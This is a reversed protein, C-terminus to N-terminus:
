FARPVRHPLEQLNKVPEDRLCVGNVTRREWDYIHEIL